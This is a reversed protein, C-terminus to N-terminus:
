RNDKGTVASKDAEYVRTLLSMVAMADAPTGHTIARRNMVAGIFEDIELAWSDDSSFEDVEPKPNPIPLGQNDFECRSLQIKEPGYTGSSSLIGDLEIMGRELCVQVQFTHRWMTASSHLIGVQGDSNRLMAFVNDEVPVDWFHSGVFSNVESFEGCFFVFLDLLHIGQDLFIGGGSIAPDSRWNGFFDKAGSKGYTGKVWLLKGLKGSEIIESCERVSSHYRHNFGFKLVTGPKSKHAAVIEQTEALNRGPPKECFCHIGQNLAGCAVEAIADNTTCVFVADPGTDLLDHWNRFFPIGSFGRSVVPDSAGVIAVDQRDTLVGFRKSAVNGCGIIGIKLRGDATRREAM